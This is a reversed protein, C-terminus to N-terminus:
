HIKWDWPEPTSGQLPYSVQQISGLIGSVSLVYLFRTARHLRKSFPLSSRQTLRAHQEVDGIATFSGSRRFLDGPALTFLIQKKRPGIRGSSVSSSGSPKQCGGDFPVKIPLHESSQSLQSCPCHNPSALNSQVTTLLARYRHIRGVHVRYSCTGKAEAEERRPAALRDGIRHLNKAADGTLQKKKKGVRLDKRCTFILAFTYM